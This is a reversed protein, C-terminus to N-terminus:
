PLDMFFLHKKKRFLLLEETYIGGWAEWIDIKLGDSWM